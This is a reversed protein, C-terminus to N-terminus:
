KVEKGLIMSLLSEYKNLIELYVAQDFTESEGTSEYEISLRIDVWNCGLAMPGNYKCVFKM